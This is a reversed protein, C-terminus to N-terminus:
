FTVWATGSWYYRTPPTGEAYLVWGQVSPTPITAEWAIGNWQVITNDPNGWAVSAGVPVVYTDGVLPSGPPTALTFSRIVPLAGIQVKTFLTNIAAELNLISTTLFASGFRFAM